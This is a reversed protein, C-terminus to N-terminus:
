RSNLAPSSAPRTESSPLTAAVARYLRQRDANTAERRPWDCVKCFSHTWRRLLIEEASLDLYPGIRLSPHTPMACCTYLDGHCDISIQDFMLNCVKGCSEPGTEPASAIQARILGDTYKGLDSYRPDGVGDIAEFAIGLKAAFARLPEEHSANYGFKILRLQIFTTTQANSQVISAARELNAFVYALHGGVHNIQYTAQDAGSVSVTVLDPKALLTAELNDIHRFSLTTSLLCSLHRKKVEAVYDQLDRALFPETWSFLGIRRYGECKLKDLVARFIDLPMKAASNRLVGAGRVCTPCKLHCADIIDIYGITAPQDAITMFDELL